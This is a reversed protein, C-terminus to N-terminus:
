FKLWKFGRHTTRKGLVCHSINSPKFGLSGASAMSPFWIGYSNNYGIVPTSLGHKVNYERTCWELNSYNNNLKDRDIHNVTEYNNPNDVFATAVLRHVRVRSRNSRGLTLIPYGKYIRQKLEKRVGFVRGDNYVTIKEDNVLMDAKNDIIDVILIKAM